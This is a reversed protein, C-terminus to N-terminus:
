GAPRFCCRAAQCMDSEDAVVCLNLCTQWVYEDAVLAHQQHVHLTSDGGGQVVVNEEQAVLRCPHIGLHRNSSIPLIVNQMRRARMLGALKLCLEDRSCSEELRGTNDVVEKLLEVRLGLDLGKSSAEAANMQLSHTLTKGWSSMM